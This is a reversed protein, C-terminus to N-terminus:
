VGDIVYLDTPFADAEIVVRSRGPRARVAAVALKYLNVTTSDSIAVQGPAVGLVAEGLLDATATADALWAPWSRILDRAWQREVPDELAGPTSVPRRGLSDGDLYIVDDAYTVLDRCGALPDAADLALAAERSDDMGRDERARCGGASAGGRVGLEHRGGSNTGHGNRVRCSRVFEAPQRTCSHGPPAPHGRSLAGVGGDVAADGPGVSANGGSACPASRSRGSGGCRIG